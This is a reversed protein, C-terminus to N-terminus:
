RGLADRLAADLDPHRFEYGLELLREPVARQGELVIEAMEGYLLRIAVPPVPMVAPRHLARGLARSFDRNTVPDPASLNVAGSATDHDLCFLLAGVVDALHIWPLYQRGSGVPGGIGARFAPLMKALAGGHADLVVGTRTLAVRLGLDEAAQAEAEWAEVVEALFDDGPSAKETLREEGRPGYYGVASQSVLVQPRKAEPVELFGAVLNRTGLVRSDRIRRKVDDSWRQAIPEGLLHIVSDAGALASEPALTSLPDAWTFAEVDSGLQRRARQDDRSLVVVADGRAQLESVLARGILGTAGTVVVRRM